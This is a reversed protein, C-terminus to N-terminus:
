RACVVAPICFSTNLPIGGVWYCESRTQSNTAGEDFFKEALLRAVRGKLSAGDIVIVRRQVTVKIEPREALLQLIGPDAQARRKIEAYIADMSAITAADSKMSPPDTAVVPSGTM